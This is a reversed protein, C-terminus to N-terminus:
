PKSRIASELELLLSSKRQKLVSDMAVVLDDQKSIFDFPPGLDYHSFWDEMINRM